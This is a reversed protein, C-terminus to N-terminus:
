NEQRTPRIVIENIDVDHPQRIVFEITSAFAEASIADAYRQRVDAAIDAEAISDVLESAIRGPSIVTNRINYAKLEQRLGESIARVAVKTASYIAGSPIVKHGAISAVNIIHGSKQAKMHPLAAAVGYLVGKINVDITRDWEKVKVRELPSLPMVGANNVIVDLRGHRQIAHYVLRKVQEFDTVDTQVAADRDLGLDRAIAELREIRRAGLVIKAGSRALSRVSAEGLGSSAGTVVIVKNEIADAV